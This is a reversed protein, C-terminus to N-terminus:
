SILTISIDGSISVPAGPIPANVWKTTMKVLSLDAKNLWLIGESSAADTGSEKISFKIKLTDTTGVKDEGVLTYSAKAPVAGTKKDEKVDYTWTDGAKVETDPTIFLTLAAFRYTNAEVNEGKIEVVEGKANMTTLQSGGSSPGDEGNIKTDTTTSEQTYGGMDDVKIIKWTSNAEYDIPMGAVDFKGAQKYKHVDGVKPTRKFSYTTDSAALSLAALGLVAVVALNKLKM